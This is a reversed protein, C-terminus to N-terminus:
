WLLLSLDLNSVKSYELLFYCTGWSLEGWSTILGLLLSMPISGEFRWQPSGLDWFYKFRFGQGSGDSM